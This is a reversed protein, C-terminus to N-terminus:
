VLQFPVWLIRSSQGALGVFGWLTAPDERLGLSRSLAIDQAPSVSHFAWSAESGLHLCSTQTIVNLGGLAWSEENPLQFPRRITNDLLFSSTYSFGDGPSDIVSGTTM